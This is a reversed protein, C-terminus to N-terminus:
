AGFVAGIETGFAIAFSLALAFRLSQRVSLIKKSITGKGGGPKGLILAFM